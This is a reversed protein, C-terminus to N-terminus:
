VFDKADFWHEEDLDWPFSTRCPGVGKDIVNDEYGKEQEDEDYYEVSACDGARNASRWMKDTFKFEQGSPDPTEFTRSGGKCNKDRYLTVTCKPQSTQNSNQPARKM